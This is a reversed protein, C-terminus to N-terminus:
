QWYRGVQFYLLVRTMEEVVNKENVVVFLAGAKTMRKGFALQNATPKNNGYKTEIFVVLGNKVAIIDSIGVKSYANAPPMFDEVDSKKLMRRVLRKVGAENHIEARDAAKQLAAELRGVAMQVDNKSLTKSM